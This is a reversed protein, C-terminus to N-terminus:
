LSKTIDKTTPQIRRLRPDKDLSKWFDAQKKIYDDWSTESELEEDMYTGFKYQMLHQNKYLFYYFYLISEKGLFQIKMHIHFRGKDSVEIYADYNIDFHLDDLIKKIYSRFSRFPDKAEYCHAIEKPSLNITLAYWESSSVDHPSM